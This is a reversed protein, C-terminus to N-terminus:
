SNVFALFSMNIIIYIFISLSGKLNNFLIASLMSYRSGGSYTHVYLFLTSTDPVYLYDTPGTQLQWILTPRRSADPPDITHTPAVPDGSLICWAKVHVNWASFGHSGIRHSGICMYRVGKIYLRRCQVHDFNFM